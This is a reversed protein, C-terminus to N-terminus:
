KVTNFRSNRPRAFLGRSLPDYLVSYAGTKAGLHPTSTNKQPISQKDFQTPPKIALPPPANLFKRGNSDECRKSGRSSEWGPVRPVNKISASFAGDTLPPSVLGAKKTAEM